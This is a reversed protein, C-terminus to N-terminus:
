KSKVMHILNFLKILTQFTNKFYSNFLMIYYKEKQMLFFIDNFIVGFNRLIHIVIFTKFFTTSYPFFAWSSKKRLAFIFNLVSYNMKVDFNKLFYSKCELDIQFNSMYYEQLISEGDIM